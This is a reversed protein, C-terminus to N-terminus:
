VDRRRDESQSSVPPHPQAREELGMLVLLLLMGVVIASDALNFVPWFKFDLFDTVFGFRIRDILNGFAGGLQLGMALQIPWRATALQRTYLLLFAIVVVAVAVLISGWERFLGFAIGTNTVHTFTFYRALAPIPAWSEYLALNERVWAKSLQDAAFTFLAVVGMIWRREM